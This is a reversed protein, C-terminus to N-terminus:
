FLTVVVLGDEIIVVVTLDDGDLDSGEVKWKGDKQPACSRANVLANRLDGERVGREHMRQRAHSSVFYRGAAAYGRVHKLAEDATM